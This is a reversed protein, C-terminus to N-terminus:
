LKINKLLEQKTREGLDKCKHGAYLHFPLLKSEKKILTYAGFATGNPINSGPLICCYTGLTVFDGIVIDEVCGGFQQEKPVSPLDLSCERYDSSACHVSCGHALTSYNGMTFKGKSGSISSHSAIHCNTGINIKASIYAFDDIITNDGISVNEPQRIRVTKGIVVNKGVHKLKSVDFFINDQM